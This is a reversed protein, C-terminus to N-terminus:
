TLMPLNVTSYFHRNEHIPDDNVPEPIVEDLHLGPPTVLFIQPQSPLNMYERGLAIYKNQFTMRAEHTKM